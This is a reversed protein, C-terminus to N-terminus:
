GGKSERKQRARQAILDFTTAAPPTPPENLSKPERRGATVIAAIRARLVDDRRPGRDLQEIARLFHAASKYRMVRQKHLSRELIDAVEEPLRRQEIPGLPLEQTLHQTKIEAITEAMFPAHGTLMEYLIVGLAYVDSQPSVLGEFSEPSMYAPSGAAIAFGHAYDAATYECALGYDCVYAQGGHDFLINAPKLDRHVVGAQHLAEVGAGIQRLMFLALPLDLARTRKLLDRLSIGDVFEMVILPMDDLMQVNYITILNPHKVHAAARAGDVYALRAASRSVGRFQHLFKVAVRRNLAEDFAAFVAGGGGEGLLEGLKVHGIRRPIVIPERQPAGPVAAMVTVTDQVTSMGRSEPFRRRWRAAWGGASAEM